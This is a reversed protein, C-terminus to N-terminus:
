MWVSKANISGDWDRGGHVRILQGERAAAANLIAEPGLVQDSFTGNGHYIRMAGRTDSDIYVWNQGVNPDDEPLAVRIRNEFKDVDVVRYKSEVLIMQADAPATNLGVFSLLAAVMLTLVIKSNKM